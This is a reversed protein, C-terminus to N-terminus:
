TALLLTLILHRKVKSFLPTSYGHRGTPTTANHAKRQELKSIASLDIDGSRRAM